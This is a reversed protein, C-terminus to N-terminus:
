PFHIGIRIRHYLYIYLQILKLDVVNARISQEALWCDVIGLQNALRAIRNLVRLVRRRNRFRFATFCLVNPSCLGFALDFRAAEVFGLALM